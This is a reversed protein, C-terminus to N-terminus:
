KLAHNKGQIHHSIYALTSWSLKPSCQGGSRRQGDTMCWIEAAWHTESASCCMEELLQETKWWCPDPLIQNLRNCKHLELISFFNAELPRLKSFPLSGFFVRWHPPPSYLLLLLIRLLFPTYDSHSTLWSSKCTCWKKVLSWQLHKPQTARGATISASSCSYQATIHM